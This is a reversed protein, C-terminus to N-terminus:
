FNKNNRFHVNKAMNRRGALIANKDKGRGAMEPDCNLKSMSCVGRIELFELVRLWRLEKTNM